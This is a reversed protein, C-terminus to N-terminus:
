NVFKEAVKRLLPFSEITSGLSDGLVNVEFDGIDIDADDGCVAPNAAAKKSKIDNFHDNTRNYSQGRLMGVSATSATCVTEAPNSSAAESASISTAAAAEGCAPFPFNSKLRGRPSFLPNVLKNNDNDITSAAGEVRDAVTSSSGTPSTGVKLQQDSAAVKKMVHIQEMSRGQIYAAFRPSSSAQLENAKSGGSESEVGREVTTTNNVVCGGGATTALLVSGVSQSLTYMSARPSGSRSSSSETDVSSISDLSTSMTTSIGITSSRRLQALQNNTRRFAKAKADAENDVLESPSSQSNADPTTLASSLSPQEDVDLPEPTCNDRSDAQILSNLSKTSLEPQSFRRRVIDQAAKSSNRPNALVSSSSSVNSTSKDDARSAESSGVATALQPKSRNENVHKLLENTLRYQAASALNMNVNESRIRGGNVNETSDVMYTTEYSNRVNFELASAFEGDCSHQQSIAASPKSPGKSISDVDAGGPDASKVAPLLSARREKPTKAALLLAARANHFGSPNTKASNRGSNTRVAEVIDTSDTQVSSTSYSDLETENGHNEQNFESRSVAWSQEDLSTSVTLGKGRNLSNQILPNDHGISKESMCERSRLKQLAAVAPNVGESNLESDSSVSGTSAGVSAKTALKMSKIPNSSAFSSQTTEATNWHGSEDILGRAVSTEKPERQKTEGAEAVVVRQERLVELAPNEMQKLPTAALIGSSDADPRSVDNNPALSVCQSDGRTRYTAYLSADVAEVTENSSSSTTAAPNEDTKQSSLAASQEQALVDATFAVVAPEKNSSCHRPSTDQSRNSSSSSTRTLKTLGPNLGLTQIEPGLVKASTSMITDNIVEIMKTNTLDVVDNAPRKQPSEAKNKRYWNLFLRRLHKRKSQKDPPLLGLSTLDESSTPRNGNDSASSRGVISIGLSSLSVLRSSGHLNENMGNSSSTSPLPSPRAKEFLDGMEPLSGASRTRSRLRANSSKKWVYHFLAALVALIALSGFKLCDRFAMPLKHHSPAPSSSIPDFGAPAGNGNAILLEMNKSDGRYELASPNNCHDDQSSTEPIGVSFSQGQHSHAGVEGNASSSEDKISVFDIEEARKTASADNKVNGANEDVVANLTSMMRAHNNLAPVRYCLQLEVFISRNANNDGSLPFIL